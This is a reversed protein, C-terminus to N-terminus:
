DAQIIDKIIEERTKNLYLAIMEQYARDQGNQHLQKLIQNGQEQQGLFVLNVAKNMLLMDRDGNKLSMTDLVKDYKAAAETFYKKSSVTDGEIHYLIGITVCYDPADPKLRRLSHAAMLAKDFQKLQLLFTLKNAYATLFNSDIQTAQDLLDIAKPYDQQRKAIWTASDHLKRAQPDVISKKRETQQDCASLGALLFFFLFRMTSIINSRLNMAMRSLPIRGNALRSCSDCPIVSAKAYISPRVPKFDPGKGQQKEV